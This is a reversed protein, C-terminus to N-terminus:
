PLAPSLVVPVGLAEALCRASPLSKFLRLVNTVKGHEASHIGAIPNDRAFDVIDYDHRTSLRYLFRRVSARCWADHTPTANRDLAVLLLERYDRLWESQPMAIPLVAACEVVQLDTLWRSYLGSYPLKGNQVDSVPNEISLTEPLSPSGSDRSRERQKEIGASGDSRSARPTHRFRKIEVSSTLM